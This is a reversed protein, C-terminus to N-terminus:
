FLMHYVSDDIIYIDDGEIVILNVYYFSTIKSMHLPSNLSRTRYIEKTVTTVSLSMFPNSRTLKKCLRHTSGIVMMMKM